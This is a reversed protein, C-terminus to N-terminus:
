KAKSDGQWKPENIGYIAALSQAIHHVVPM